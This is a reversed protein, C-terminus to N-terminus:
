ASGNQESTRSRTAMERRRPQFRIQLECGMARAIRALRDLTLNPSPDNEIRSINPASMGARAALETQTLKRRQRLAAIQTGVRLARLEAEVRARFDPDKMQGEFFRQWNTRKRKM